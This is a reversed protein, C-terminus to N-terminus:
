ATDRQVIMELAQVFASVPQAGSLGYRGELVYFPVGRVGLRAAQFQSSQVEAIFADSSLMARVGSPELGSETAVAVLTDPDSLNRGDTFFARFMAEAVVWELGHDRAHLIVRHADRTNSARAIGDLNFRIGDDQAAQVVHEFASRMRDPGGFKAHAFPQWAVGDPPLAPQLQFPQWVREVRLNPTDQLARELRKLGIYCWPCAVDAFVDIRITNM